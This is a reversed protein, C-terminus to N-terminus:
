WPVAVELGADRRTLNPRLGWGTTAPRSRPASFFLAAGAILSAVGVGFGVDSIIGTASAQDIRSQTACVHNPCDQAIGLTSVGFGIGVGLGVIGVGGLALGIWRQTAGDRSPPADHAVEPVLPLSVLFDPDPVLRAEPVTIDRTWASRGPAAARLVHKGPALLVSGDGARHAVEDGDRLVAGEPLGALHVHTVFVELAKAHEGAFKERDAQERDHARSAVIMYRGWATAQKGEHEDCYAVSLLSGLQSDLNDSARFDKCAEALHGRALQAQGQKYLEDAEHVPDQAFGLSAWSLLMLAEPLIVAARM